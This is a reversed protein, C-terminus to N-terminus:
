KPLSLIRLLKVSCDVNLLWTVVQAKKLVSIKDTKLIDCNWWKYLLM